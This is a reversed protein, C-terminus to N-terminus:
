TYMNFQLFVYTFFRKTEELYNVYNNMEFDEKKQLFFVKSYIYKKRIM